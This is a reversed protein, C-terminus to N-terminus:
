FITIATTVITITITITITVINFNPGAHLPSVGWFAHPRESRCIRCTRPTQTRAYVRKAPITVNQWEGHPRTNTNPEYQTRPSVQRTRSLVSVSLSSPKPITPIETALGYVRKGKAPKWAQSARNIKLAGM